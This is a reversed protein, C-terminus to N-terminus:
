SVQRLILPVLGERSEIEEPGEELLANGQRAERLLLPKGQPRSAAPHPLIALM